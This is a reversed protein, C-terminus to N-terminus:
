EERFGVMKFGLIRRLCWQDLVDIRLIDAKNVTWCESAYLMIPIIYTNYLHLKTSTAIRSRWLRHDLKQMATRTMACLRRIELESSCSSHILVGFYTFEDVCQVDQGCVRVSPPVDEAPGLAQVMTKQWNVELGLPVAEEQFSELVPVLFELMESLLSV